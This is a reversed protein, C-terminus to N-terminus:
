PTRRWLAGGSEGEVVCLRGKPDCARVVGPAAAPTLAGDPSLLDRGLLAGEAVAVAPAGVGQAIVAGQDSWLTWDGAARQTLAHTPGMPILTLAEAGPSEPHVPWPPGDGRQLTAPALLTPGPGMTASRLTWGAEEALRAPRELPRESVVCDASIVRWAGWLGTETWVWSTVVVADPGEALLTEADMTVECRRAGDVWRTLTEGRLTWLAGDPTFRLARAPGGVDLRGLGRGDADLREVGAGVAVALADAEPSVATVGLPLSPPATPTPPPPACALLLALPMNVGLTM